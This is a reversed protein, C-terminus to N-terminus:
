IKIEHGGHEINKERKSNLSGHSWLRVSGLEIDMGIGRNNTVRTEDGKHLRGRNGQCDM